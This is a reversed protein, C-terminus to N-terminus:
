KRKSELIGRKQSNKHIRALPSNMIMRNDRASHTVRKVHTMTKAFEAYSVLLPCREISILALSKEAGGKDGM